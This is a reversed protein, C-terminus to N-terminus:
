PNKRLENLVRVVQDAYSDVDFGDRKCFTFRLIKWGLPEIYESKKLDKQRKKPSNHWNGGDVEIALMVDNFALDINFRGVALNPYPDLGRSKLAEYMINEYKSRITGSYFAAIKKQHEISNPVGRKADHAASVNPIFGHAYARKVGDSMSPIAFGYEIAKKKVVGRSTKIIESIRKVSFKKVNLLDNLVEYSIIIKRGM